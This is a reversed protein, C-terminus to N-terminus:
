RANAHAQRAAFSLADGNSARAIRFFGRMMTNSSTVGASSVRESRAMWVSSSRPMSRHRNRMAQGRDDIGVPDEHYLMPADDFLALMVLKEFAIADVRAHPRQLPLLAFQLVQLAFHRRLRHSEFREDGAYDIRQMVLDICAADVGRYPQLRVRGQVHVAIRACQLLDYGFEAALRDVRRRAALTHFQTSEAVVIM